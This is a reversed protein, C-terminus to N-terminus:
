PPPTRRRDPAPPSPAVRGRGHHARARLHAPLDRRRGARGSWADLLDTEIELVVLPEGVEAYFRARRAVQERRAAHLYGVEELTRGHTSTTYSGPRRRRRGTPSRPSTSSGCAACGARVGVVRATAIHRGLHPVRANPPPTLSTWQGARIMTARCPSASYSVGSIFAVPPLRVASPRSGPERAPPAAATRLPDGGHHAALQRSGHLRGLDRRRLEAQRHPHPLPQLLERGTVVEAPGVVVANKRAITPQGPQGAVEVDPDGSALGAPLRGLPHEPHEVVEGVLVAALGHEHDGVAAHDGRQPARDGRTAVRCRGCAVTSLPEDYTKSRSASPQRSAAPTSSTAPWGAGSWTSCSRSRPTACTPRCTACPATCWSSPSATCWRGAASTPARRPARALGRRM